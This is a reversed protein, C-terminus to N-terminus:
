SNYMIWSVLIEKKIQRVTSSSPLLLGYKQNNYVIIITLQNANPPMELLIQHNLESLFFLATDCICFPTDESNGTKIASISVFRFSNM